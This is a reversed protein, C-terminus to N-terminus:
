LQGSDGWNDLLKQYTPDDYGDLRFASAYAPLPREVIHDALLDAAGNSSTM